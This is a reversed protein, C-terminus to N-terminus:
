QREGASPQTNKRDPVFAVRFRLDPHGLNELACRIDEAKVSGQYRKPVKIKLENNVLAVDVEPETLINATSMLGVERMSTQLKSRWDEESKAVEEIVATLQFAQEARNKLKKTTEAARTTLKDILDPIKSVAEDQMWRPAQSFHWVTESDHDPYSYNGSCSRLAIRWSHKLETYGIDRSWWSTDDDGGNTIETWASIGLNLKQLATELASVARSLEDSAINLNTAASTLQKYSTHVRETLTAEKAAM